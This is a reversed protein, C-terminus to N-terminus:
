GCVQVRRVRWAYGDWFRQNQLYCGPGPYYGAGYYYPGGYYGYPGYYRPAALAGGILAGAALGGIVGGIIRGGGAEAPRPAAVSTLAIAAATVAAMMTAKMIRGERLPYGSLGLGPRAAWVSLKARRGQVSPSHRRRITAM